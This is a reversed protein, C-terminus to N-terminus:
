SSIIRQVTYSSNFKLLAYYHYCYCYYYYSFTTTFQLKWDRYVFPGDNKGRPVCNTYLQNLPKTCLLITRQGLSPPLLKRRFTPLMVLSCPIVVLFVMILIRMATFVESRLIAFYLDIYFYAIKISQVMFIAAICKESVNTVV